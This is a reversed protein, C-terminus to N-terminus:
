SVDFLDLLTLCALKSRFYHNARLFVYLILVATVTYTEDCTQKQV